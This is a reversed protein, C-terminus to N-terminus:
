LADALFCNLINFTFVIAVCFTWPFIFWGRDLFPFRGISNNLIYIWVTVIPVPHLNSLFSFVSSGYSGAIGSQAIYEYFVFARIWFSVCEGINM